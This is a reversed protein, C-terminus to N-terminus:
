LTSLEAAKVCSRDGADALSWRRQHQIRGGAPAGPPLLLALARCRTLLGIMNCRVHQQPVSCRRPKDWRVASVTLVTPRLAVVTQQVDSDLERLALSVTRLQEMTGASTAQATLRKICDDLVECSCVISLIMSVLMFSGVVFGGFFVVNGLKFWVWVTDVTMINGYGVIQSLVFAGQLRNRM